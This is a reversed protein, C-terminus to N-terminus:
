AKGNAPPSEANEEIATGCEPCVGSVNGTLDYKCVRCIGRDRKRDMLRHRLKAAGRSLVGVGIVFMSSGVVWVWEPPDGWNWWTYRSGLYLILFPLSTLLGFVGFM